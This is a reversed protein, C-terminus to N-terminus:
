SAEARIGAISLGLAPIDVGAANVTATAQDGERYVSGGTAAPQHTSAVGGRLVVLGPPLDSTSAQGDVCPTEVSNAVGSQTAASGLVAARCSFQAQVPQVPEAVARVGAPVRAGLAILLTVLFGGSRRSM